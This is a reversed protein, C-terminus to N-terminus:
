RSPEDLDKNTFRSVPLKSRAVFDGSVGLVVYRENELTHRYPVGKVSCPANKADHYIPRARPILHHENDRMFTILSTEDPFFYHVTGSASRDQCLILCPWKNTECGATETEIYKEEGIYTVIEDYSIACGYRLGQFPGSVIVGLARYIEVLKDITPTFVLYKYAHGIRDRATFVIGNITIAKPEIEDLVHTVDDTIMARSDDEAVMVVVYLGADTAERVLVAYDPHPDTAFWCGFRAAETTLSGDGELARRVCTAIEAKSMKKFFFDISINIRHRTIIINTINKELARDIEAILARHTRDFISASSKCAESM